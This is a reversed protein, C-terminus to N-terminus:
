SLEFNGFDGLGDGGPIEFDDGLSDLGGNGGGSSAVSAGDSFHLTSNSEIAKKLAEKAETIMSEASKEANFAVGGMVISLSLESEGLFINTEKCKDILGECLSIASDQQVNKLFMGFKAGGLYAVLDNKGINKQVLKAISKFAALLKSQSDLARGLEKAPSFVVVACPRPFDKNNECEQTLANDFFSKTYIGLKTDYMSGQKSNANNAYMQRYARTIIDAQNVFNKHFGKLETLLMRVANQLGLPNTIKSIEDLRKQTNSEMASLDKCLSLLHELVSKTISFNENFTKELAILRTSKDSSQVINKIKTRVSEDKEQSLTKEFFAEFNEPLPLIQEEELAKMVQKSINNLTQTTDTSSPSAKKAAAKTNQKELGKKNLNGFFDNNGLDLDLDGFDM